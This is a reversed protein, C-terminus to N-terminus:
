KRWSFQQMDTHSKGDYGFKYKRNQWDTVIIYDDTLKFNGQGDLTTFIDAGNQQWQINGNRDLRTIEMEGHVIYSDQYKFIEFCTAEDAKTKWLLSLDPISLCFVTDSCCILFRDAEFITAKDHNTTGGGISGVIATTVLEEDRYVKIGFMTPLIYESSDFYVHDYHHSNDASAQQFTEDHYIDIQYQGVTHM